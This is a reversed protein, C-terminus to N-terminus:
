DRTLYSNVLFKLRGDSLKLNEGCEPCTFRGEVLHEKSCGVCYLKGCKPCRGAPADDPLEGLIRLLGPFDSGNDIWWERGCSACNMFSGFRERFTRELTSYQEAISPDAAALPRLARIASDAKKRQAFDLHLRALALLPESSGPELEAAAGYSLEARVYDGELSALAGTLTLLRPNEPEIGLGNALLEDAEPYGDQEILLAALNEVIPMFRPDLALGARYAGAADDLRRASALVNGKANLLAPSPPLSDLFAVARDVGEFRALLDAYNVNIDNEGPLLTRAEDLHRRAAAPDGSDAFVQAALNHLWGNVPDLRLAEDLDALVPLGLLHKAEALRFRYLGFDPALDCAKRYLELAETRRGTRAKLIGLLYPVVSDDSGGSLATGLSREAELWREERFEVKGRIAAVDANGPDIEALRPLCVALDTWSELRFFGRAAELYASFAAEPKGGNDLARAENLAYIPVGPDLARARGYHGAAEAWSGFNFAAHGALNELRANPESPPLLDLYTKLDGFRNQLYLLNAKDTSANAYLEPNGEPMLALCRDLAKEAEDNLNLNMFCQALLYLARTDLEANKAARNLQITAAVYNGMAYYSEALHVRAAPEIQIYRNWRFYLTEVEMPRSEVGIARLEFFAKPTGSFNEGAFAISGLAFTDDSAEAAWVDDIIVTFHGGRVILRLSIGGGALEPVEPDGESSVRVPLETWGIVPMPSGNFVADLRFYGRNSVMISYFNTDDQYRFLLGCASYGNGPGSAFVAEIVCDTYRYVPDRVWAFLGERLLELTLRKRAFRAAYGEGTEERFRSSDAKSFDTQWYEEVTASPDIEDSRRFLRKLFDFM